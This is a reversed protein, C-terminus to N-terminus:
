WKLKNFILKDKNLEYKNILSLLEYKKLVAYLNANNTRLKLKELNVNTNLIALKKSLYALNKSEIFKIKINDSLNDLNEYINELTKYDNLLKIATKEGLGKIGPLNDSSDGVIGKFDPIQSPSIFYENSFNVISILKINKVGSKNLIISVNKNVLQLLDRDSSLIEIFNNNFKKSLTAIVDDAEWEGSEYCIIKKALLIEKIIPFQMILENPTKQRGGKYDSFLKHRSTKKFSDFAVIIKSYNRRSNISDMMNMFTLVANTYIGNSTKLMKAKNFSTGYYARYLLSNGDILLIKDM